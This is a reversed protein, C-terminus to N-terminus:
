TGALDLLGDWRYRRPVPRDRGSDRVSALPWECEGANADDRARRPSRFCTLPRWRYFCALQRARRGSAEVLLGDFGHHVILNASNSGWVGGAGIDVVRRPWFGLLGFIRLLIGDEGTPSFVNLGSELPAGVDEPAARGGGARGSRLLVQQRVAEM